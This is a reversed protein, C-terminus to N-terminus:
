VREKMALLRIKACVDQFTLLVFILIMNDETSRKVVAALTLDATVGAYKEVRFPVTLTFLIWFWSFNHKGMLERRNQQNMPQNRQHTFKKEQNNVKLCTRLLECHNSVLFPNPKM